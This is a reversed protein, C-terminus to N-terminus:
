LSKQDSLHPSTTFNHKVKPISTPNTNSNAKSNKTDVTAKPRRIIIEGKYIVLNQEGDLRRREMEAVLKKHHEQEKPTRDVTIKVSNSSINPLNKIKYANSLIKYKIPKSTFIVKLPRPSRKAQTQGLRFTTKIQLSVDTDLM